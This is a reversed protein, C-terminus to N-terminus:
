ASIMLEHRDTQSTVDGCATQPTRLVRRATVARKCLMSRVTDRGRIGVVSM